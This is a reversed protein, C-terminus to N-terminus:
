HSRFAAGIDRRCFKGEFSIRDAADYARDFAESLNSGRASVVLVRGGSTVVEGDALSTGAHFVQVSPIREASEIGKIPRGSAYSGPYGASSLVVAGCAESKWSLDIGALNGRACAALAPVIDGGARPLIAETEPDGLRANFELLRPGSDTMMLGAYLAGRFERGEEALAALAPYIIEKM